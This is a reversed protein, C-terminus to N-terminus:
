VEILINSYPDIEARCGPPVITTASYEHVMAPGEFRNGPDLSARQFVATDLWESDFMVRKNKMIANDCDAGALPRRPLEFQASTAVMRVRVNVVEVKRKEDAYGYRQRHASHFSEVMSANAPVNLEYGQGAYRLDASRISTGTLNETSFDAAGRAELEAFHPDLLERQPSAMVTRSYDRVVDSILIGLASLAGPMAPVLVRPIGLARALSCAHM